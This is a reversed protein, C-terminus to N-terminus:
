APGKQFMTEAPVTWEKGDQSTIKGVASIRHNPVKEPCVYLNDIIKTALGQTVSRGGAGQAYAGTAAALVAALLMGAIGTRM